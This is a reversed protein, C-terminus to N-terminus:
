WPIDGTEPNHEESIFKGTPGDAGIIAYKVLRAAADEVSGTGRHQNFDTSTFGPDVANVKFSTDRLEYALVITYMNLAAKSSPYVAGKHHYYKWSPDSNLTLSSGGSSVNVIRPQESKKLLDMFTQTVLVLGFVNTEFVERFVSINTGTATQPLGGNIGANNILVDLVETESGIEVRANIISAEDAMDIHVAKVSTLGEARLMDVVKIGKALDRSGMYVYFGKQLLQRATELGISRNGGTILAKKM